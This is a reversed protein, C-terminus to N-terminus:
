YTFVILKILIVLPIVETACIYSFLHLNRLSVKKNLTYFIRLVTFILISAVAINSVLLVTQPNATNLVLYLLMIMPFFLGMFLTTRLFERYQTMVLPKLGFIVGMVRLFVYKVLIFIFILFTYFIIKSTIDAESVLFLRNFIFNNQVNTHIAVIVLAFSLSFALVFLISSWSSIPKALFGEELASSRLFTNLRFISYFDSTYSTRLSGYIIGILLLFLIFVNQNPLNKPRISLSASVPKIDVQIDAAEQPTLVANRFTQYNLQGLPHWICLLHPRVADPKTILKTLDVEYSAVSDATFVLQNDIFICLGQRATFNIRFPQGPRIYVWQYLANVPGHYDPLYLTLRNYNPKFVLWDVTIQNKNKLNINRGDQAQLKGAFLLLWVMLSGVVTQFM